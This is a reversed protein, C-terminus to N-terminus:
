RPCRKCRNSTHSILSSCAASDPFDTSISLMKDRELLSEGWRNWATVAFLYSRDTTLEKRYVLGTVNERLWPKERAVRDKTVHEVRHWVTYLTVWVGISYVASWQLTWNAYRVVKNTNLITPSEPLVKLVVTKEDKGASNNAVCFFEGWDKDTINKLTLVSESIGNTLVKNGKYWTVNVPSISSATCNLSVNQGMGVLPPTTVYTIRPLDVIPKAEVQLRVIDTLMDYEYGFDVQIGFTKKGDAPQVNYLVFVALSATLNGAWSLSLGYDKRVRPVGNKNVEALETKLYGPRKFIGFLVHRLTLHSPQYYRWTLSVNDGIFVKTPKDPTSIIKQRDGSTFISSPFNSSVVLALVVVFSRYWLGM